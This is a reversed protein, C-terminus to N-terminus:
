FKRREDDSGGRRQSDTLKKRHESLDTRLGHEQNSNTNKQLESSTEVMGNVTIQLRASSKGNRRPLWKALRSLLMLIYALV